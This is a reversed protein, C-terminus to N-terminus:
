PRRIPYRSGRSAQFQARMYATSERGRDARRGNSMTLPSRSATTSCAGQRLKFVWAGDGDITWSTALEGRLEGKDDYAVLSRNVLMKVTGSAAGTNVWPQLNPPFASLGFRLINQERQAFASRTLFPLAAAGQILARRSLRM